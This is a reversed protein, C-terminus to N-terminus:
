TYSAPDKRVVATFISLLTKTRPLARYECSAVRTVAGASALEPITLLTPLVQSSPVAIQPPAVLKDGAGEGVLLVGAGDGVVLVGAGDGVVLLVGAGVGVLLWAPVSASM